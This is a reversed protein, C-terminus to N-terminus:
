ESETQPLINQNPQGSILPSNPASAKIKNELQKIYRSIIGDLARSDAAAPQGIVKTKYIFNRDGEQLQEVEDIFRLILPRYESQMLSPDAIIKEEAKQLLQFIINLMDQREVLQEIANKWDSSIQAPYYIQKMSDYCMFEYYSAESTGSGFGQPALPSTPQPSVKTLLNFALCPYFIYEIQGIIRAEVPVIDDFQIYAHNHLRGFPKQKNYVKKLSELHHLIRLPFGGYERVFLIEDESQIPCIDRKDIGLKTTLINEFPDDIGQDPAKFAVLRSHVGGNFMGDKGHYDLLNEAQRRVQELAIPQHAIPHMELFRQVVSHMKGTHLSLFFTEFASNLSNKLAEEPFVAENALRILSTPLGLKTLIDETLTAFKLRSDSAPLFQEIEDEPFIAQGTLENLDLKRQQEEQREYFTVLRGLANDLNNLQRLRLAIHNQLGEIIAIAESAVFSDYNQALLAKVEDVANKMVKEIRPFNRKRFWPLRNQGLIEEIEEDAVSWLGDVQEPPRMGGIERKKEESRRQCRNIYTKMAELFSLGNFISFHVDNANLLDALFDDIDKTLSELTKSKANLALTLWQGRVTENEGPQVSRFTRRLENPLNRRLQDVDESTQCDIDEQVKRSWNDLFQHFTKGGDQALGTLRNVFVDMSQEAGWKAKTLFRDLLEQADAGQGQPRRWFNLLDSCLRLLAIQFLRDRTFYIASLGFTLYYQPMKFPHLDTKLM